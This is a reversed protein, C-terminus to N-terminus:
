KMEDDATDNDDDLDMDDNDDEFLLEDMDPAADAEMSPTVNGAIPATHNSFLAIPILILLLLIHM